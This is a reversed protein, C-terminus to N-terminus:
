SKGAAVLVGTVVHPKDVDIRNLRFVVKDRVLYRMTIANGGVDYSDPLGYTRLVKEFSAGFGIGRRTRVKPNELGIAEIQVVRSNKDLVFAYKGGGHKYIWRTFSGGGGGGAAAAPAGGGARAGGGGGGGGGGARAGAGRQLLSQQFLAQDGFTFPTVVDGGGAGGGGARRGGGAGGAAGGGGGGAARPAGAAAGGGGGGGGAGVPQIDDPEGYVDMLRFVTDYLRIGVLTTEATTSKQAM